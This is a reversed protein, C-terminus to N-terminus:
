KGSFCYTYCEIFNQNSFADAGAMKLEFGIGQMDVYDPKFADIFKQSDDKSVEKGAKIFAKNEPPPPGMRNDPKGKDAPLDSSDSEKKSEKHDGEIKSAIAEEIAKIHESGSEVEKKKSRKGKKEPEWKGESIKRYSIGHWVHVTGIPLGGKFLIEDFEEITYDPFAKSLDSLDLLAKIADEFNLGFKVKGADSTGVETYFDDRKAAEPDLGEGHQAKGKNKGTTYIMEQKGGDAVIVSDQNYKEGLKTIENKDADHIMVLFSDEKGGYHGVAKTFAYGSEKLEQHLKRHREAVQEDTLNKDQEHNPNKGASMLAYKGSKLTVDLEEKSLAVLRGQGKGLKKTKKELQQKIKTEPDVKERATEAHVKTVQANPLKRKLEDQARASADSHTGASVDFEHSYNHGDVTFDLKVKHKTNLKDAVTQIKKQHDEGPTPTRYKEEAQKFHQDLEPSKIGMKGVTEKMHGVAAQMAERKATEVTNSQDEKRKIAAEIALKQSAHREMEANASAAHKPDKNELHERTKSTELGAMPTWKGESVKKYKQGDRYTHVTGIPVPEGKSILDEVSDKLANLAGFSKRYNVFTDYFQQTYADERSWHEPAYPIFGGDVFKYPNHYPSDVSMEVPAFPDHSLSKMIQDEMAEIKSSPKEHALGKEIHEDLIESLKKLDFDFKM